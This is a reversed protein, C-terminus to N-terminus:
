GPERYPDYGLFRVIPKRLEEPPEFEGVELREIAGQLVGRALAVQRRGLKLDM